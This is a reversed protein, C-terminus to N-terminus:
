INACGNSRKWNFEAYITGETQGILSSIGTKSCSDAVRTVASGNTPIYSTPYSVNKEVQLGYLYLDGNSRRSYFIKPIVGGSTYEM